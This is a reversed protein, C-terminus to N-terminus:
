LLISPEKFLDNFNFGYLDISFTEPTIFDEENNKVVCHNCVIMKCYKLM